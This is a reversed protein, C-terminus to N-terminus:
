ANEDLCFMKKFNIKDKMNLATEWNQTYPNFFFLISFLERHLVIPGADELFAPYIKRRFFM